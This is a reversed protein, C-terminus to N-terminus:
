RDELARSSGSEALGLAPAARVAFIDGPHQYLLCVPEGRTELLGCQWRDTKWRPVMNSRYSRNKVFEIPLVHM